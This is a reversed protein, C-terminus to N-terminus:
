LRDATRTPNHVRVGDRRAFNSIIQAVHTVGAWQRERAAEALEPFQHCESVILRNIQLVEPSLSIGLALHAFARM